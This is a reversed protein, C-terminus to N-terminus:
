GQEEKPKPPTDWYPSKCKACRKPRGPKWPFWQHHCILCERRRVTRTSPMKSNTYM